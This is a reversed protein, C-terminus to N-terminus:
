RGSVFRGREIRFTVIDEFELMAPLGKMTWVLKSIRGDGEDVLDECAGLCWWLGRSELSVEYVGDPLAKIRAWIDVVRTLAVEPELTVMWEIKPRPDGGGPGSPGLAPPSCVIAGSVADKVLVTALVGPHTADIIRPRAELREEEVMPGRPVLVHQTGYTQVSVTTASTNTVSIHLPAVLSDQEKDLPGLALKTALSPPQLLSQITEFRCRGHRPNMVLKPRQTERESTFDQGKDLQGYHYSKVGLDESTFRIGYNRGAEFLGAIESDTKIRYHHTVIGTKWSGNRGIPSPLTLYIDEKEPTTTYDLKVELKEGDALLELLDNALAYPVDLASERTNFILPRTDTDQPSRRCLGFVIDFPLQGELDFVQYQSNLLVHIPLVDMEFISFNTALRLIFLFVTITMM